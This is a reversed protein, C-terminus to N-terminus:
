RLPSSTASERKWIRTIQAGLGASRAGRCARATTGIRAGVGVAAQNTMGALEARSATPECWKLKRTVSMSSVSVKIFADPM